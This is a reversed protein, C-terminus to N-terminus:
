SVFATKLDSCSIVTAFVHFVSDSVTGKPIEISRLRVKGLPLKSLKIMSNIIEEKLVFSYINNAEDSVTPKSNRALSIKLSIILAHFLEDRIREKSDVLAHDLINSVSSFLELFEPSRAETPHATLVYIIHEPIIKGFELHSSSLRYNRYSTECRNILELMLSFSYCIRHVEESSYGQMKKLETNLKKYVVEPSKGRLTKMQKRLNEIKNYTLAGYEQKIAEGLISVSWSVLEQLQKSIRKSDM